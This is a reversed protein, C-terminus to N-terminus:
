FGMSRDEPARDDGQVTSGAILPDDAEDRVLSPVRLGLQDRDV